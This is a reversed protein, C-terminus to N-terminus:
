QSEEDHLLYRVEELNDSIEEAIKDLHKKIGQANRDLLDDNPEDQAQQLALQLDVTFRLKEEEKEQVKGVLSELEKWESMEKKLEIMKDSVEKFKATAKGVSARYQEFEYEPGTSLYKKHAEGLSSYERVREEQLALFRRILDKRGEESM